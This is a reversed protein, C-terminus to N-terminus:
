DEFRYGFENIEEAYLNAVKDRSVSSYFEQYPRKERGVSINIHGLELGLLGVKGCVIQFDRELQEFRGVFDVVVQGKRNKLYQMYGISFGHVGNETALIELFEDFTMDKGLPGNERTLYHYQSVLMDWPNRVFAFKFYSRFRSKFLKRYQQLRLHKGEGIRCHGGPNAFSKYANGLDDEINQEGLHNLLSYEVSTGGTKPIHVFISKQCDLIM